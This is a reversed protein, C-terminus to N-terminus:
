HIYASAGAHCICASALEVVSPGHSNCPKTFLSLVDTNVKIHQSLSVCEGKKETSKRPPPRRPKVGQQISVHTVSTGVADRDCISRGSPRSHLHPMGVSSQEYGVEGATRTRCALSSLTNDCLIPAQMARTSTAHSPATVQAEGERRNQREREWRGDCGRLNQEGVGDGDKKKLSIHRYQRDCSFRM